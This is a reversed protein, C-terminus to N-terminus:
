PSSTAPAVPVFQLRTGDSAILVLTDGVFEFRRTERLGRFFRTELSDPGDCGVATSEIQTIQLSDGALRWPGGYANCFSRGGAGSPDAAFRITPRIGPHPDHAPIRPDRAVSPPTIQSGLRALEWERGFSARLAAESASAADGANVPASDSVEGDGRASCAVVAFALVALRQTTRPQSTM